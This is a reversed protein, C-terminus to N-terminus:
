QCLCCGGRVPAVGWGGRKAGSGLRRWQRRLPRIPAQITSHRRILPNAGSRHFPVQDTPHLAKIRVGLGSKHGMNVSAGDLSMNLLRSPWLKSPEPGIELKSCSVAVVCKEGDASSPLEIADFPRGSQLAQADLPKLTAFGKDVFAKTYTATLAQADFSDGDHSYRVDVPVLDFFRVHLSV